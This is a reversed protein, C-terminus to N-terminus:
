MLKNELREVSCTYILLHGPYKLTQIHRLIDQCAGPLPVAVTKVSSHQLDVLSDTTRSVPLLLCRLDHSKDCSKTTHDSVSSTSQVKISSITRLTCTKTYLNQRKDVSLKKHLTDSCWVTSSCQDQPIFCNESHRVPFCLNRFSSTMTFSMMVQTFDIFSEM